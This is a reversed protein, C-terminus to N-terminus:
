TCVQNGSADVKASKPYVISNSASSEGYNGNEVWFYNTPYAPDFVQVEGLILYNPYQSYIHYGGSIPTLSCDSTIYIYGFIPRTPGNFKVPYYFLSNAVGNFMNGFDHDWALGQNGLLINAGHSVFQDPTGSTSQVELVNEGNQSKFFEIAQGAEVVTSKGNAISANKKMNVFSLMVMVALIGIIAVVILLEILTFGTIRKPNNEDM